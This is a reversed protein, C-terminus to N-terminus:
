KNPFIVLTGSEISYYHRLALRSLAATSRLFTIVHLNNTNYFSFLFM